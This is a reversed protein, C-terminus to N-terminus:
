YSKGEAGVRRDIVGQVLCNSPIAVGVTDPLPPRIPVTGAPAEPVAEAKEIVMTSAPFAIGALAECKLAPAITPGSDAHAATSGLIMSAGALISAVAIQITERQMTEELASSLLQDIQRQSSRETAGSRVYHLLASTPSIESTQM